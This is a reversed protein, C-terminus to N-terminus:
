EEADGTRRQYARYESEERAFESADPDTDNLARLLSNVADEINARQEGDIISLGKCNYGTAVFGGSYQSIRIYQLEM